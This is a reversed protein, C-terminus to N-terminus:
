RASRHREAQEVLGSGSSDHQFWLPQLSRQRPWIENLTEGDYLRGNKMVQHISLTNKINVLPNRDLIVIDALKGPELSGIERDRGITKSSGMTAARLIEHPTMGGAAYAQMEWHYGLGPLEGHSGVGVLGGARQIEAASRAVEPFIYEDPLAWGLRQTKHDIFYHPTFHNLKADSHPSATTFFFQEGPLGGANIQLTPTYSVGTRVFLQIVDDYLPVATMAHENGPFGDQIQTMDMKMDLAGECTPLLGFQRASEVIWERVCRNGTRYQKLNWTRYNKPYRSLVDIVAQLSTFNNYSFIAPGTSYVRTGTMQGDEILDQYALMDISLPSPDLATTVGYALTALFGWDHLDLVGRRVEGWHMHTDVFGPVLYKGSVDRITAGAPISVNRRGGIATIHNDTIVVDADPIVEDGRMTIATAGRLVLIGHPVDRSVQINVPIAQVGDKGNVPGGYLVPQGVRISSLPRRYFTSGLTWTITKGSDAWDFFDAGVTTLKTFKGSPSNLDVPKTNSADSVPVLYIQQVIQALAWKGDPSIKVDDAPVAGEQFYFGPGNVQLVRKRSSGDLAVAYLGDHFYIYVLNPLQTFRPTGSMVGSAIVTTNGGAAPLRIVNAERPGFELFNHMREYNSSELAIIATSDPTFVPHTYYASDATLRVPQSSGDSAARWIYGGRATWTIYVISRDDPSWSPQFEPADGATLRRVTKQAIDMVYIHGLASFALRSGDPSQRPTQILRARVPGTEVPLPHRLSPGVDLAVHVLFPVTEVKATSLSLRHIKGGYNLLLSQGDPTFAYRPLLDRSSLGEQNDHQIPYLLPRDRGHNLDRIRLGTKGEFRTAYVLSKGDPSLVPRFASGQANVITEEEGTSLNLRAIHWLPFTLDNAFGPGIKEEFYLYRGDPSAVAGLANSRDEKSTDASSKAHTIQMVPSGDMPYRWIEFANLDPKFRSIFISRGDAAWAPSIFVSNDDLGSIQIPDSGDPKAMWLNENGSRDSVFAIRTEDPSYAPQSDFPLGCAICQTAGGHIDMRYLDGLLEFVIEKGDPSIDLSVWTGETEDFRLLRGPQLPLSDGLKGRIEQTAPATQAPLASGFVLLLAAVAASSISKQMPSRGIKLIPWYSVNHRRTQWGSLIFDISM